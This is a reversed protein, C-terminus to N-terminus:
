PGPINQKMVYYYCLCFMASGISLIGFVADFRTKRTLLAQTEWGGAIMRLLRCINRRAINLLNCYMHSNKVCIVPTSLAGTMPMISRHQSDQSQVFSQVLSIKCWKTHSQKWLSTLWVFSLLAFLTKYSAEYLVGSDISHKNYKNNIYSQDPDPRARLLGWKCHMWTEQMVLSASWQKLLEGTCVHFIVM